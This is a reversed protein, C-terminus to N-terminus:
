VWLCRNVVCQQCPGLGSSRPEHGHSSAPPSSTEVLNAQRLQRLKGPPAAKFPPPQPAGNLRANAAANLRAWPGTAPVQAHVWKMTDAAPLEAPGCWRQGRARIGLELAKEAM